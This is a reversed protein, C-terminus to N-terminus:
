EQAQKKLTEKGATEDKPAEELEPKQVPIWIEVVSEPSDEDFRDDYAEFMELSAPKYGTTTLWEGYIYEYARGIEKVPGLYEFVAYNGGPVKHLQLDEPLDVKDKVEMGVFYNYGHMTAPDYKEGPYYIGYLRNGVPEPLKDGLTFFKKWLEMMADGDMANQAELGMVIFPESAEFRIKMQPPTERATFEQGALGVVALAAALFIMVYKNM